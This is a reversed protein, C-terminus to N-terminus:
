IFIKRQMHLADHFKPPSPKRKKINNERVCDVCLPLKKNYPLLKENGVSSFLCNITGNIRTGWEEENIEYEENM